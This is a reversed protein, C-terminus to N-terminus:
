PTEKVLDYDIKGDGDYVRRWRYGRWVPKQVKHVVGTEVSRKMGSSLRALEELMKPDVPWSGGILHRDWDDAM